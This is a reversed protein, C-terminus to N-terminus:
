LTQVAKGLRFYSNNSRQSGLIAGIL